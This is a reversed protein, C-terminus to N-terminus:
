FFNLPFVYVLPQPLWSTLVLIIEEPWLRSGPWSIQPCFALTSSLIQAVMLQPGLGLLRVLLLLSLCLNSFRAHLVLLVPVQYHDLPEKYVGKRSESNTDSRIYAPVCPQYQPVLLLM